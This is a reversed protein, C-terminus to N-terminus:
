GHNGHEMALQVQVQRSVRTEAKPREVPAPPQEIVLPATALWTAWPVWKQGTWVHIVSDPDEYPADIPVNALLTGETHCGRQQERAERSRRLGELSYFGSM